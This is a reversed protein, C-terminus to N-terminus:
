YVLRKVIYVTNNKLSKVEMVEVEDAGVAGRLFARVVLAGEVALFAV